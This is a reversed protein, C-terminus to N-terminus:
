IVDAVTRETRRFVAVGLGLFLVVVALGVALGPWYLHAHGAFLCWRFGDIVGAVPNVYYLLRWKEPVVSSSFGVPSIYLGFQVVFPVVFRFDRYRVTLASLVFAPGLGALVALIVFFPLFTLRSDPLVGCAVMLALLLAFSIAFDVAVVVSSAVPVLLRPFYVKSILQANTVLSGAAQSLIGSILFWPLMGALVLLFYPMRGETPLRALRGFVITLVAMTLIPRVLAWAIGFLTQKYQVAVDRWALMSFLDRYSWLDIWYSREARGSELILVREAPGCNNGIGAQQDPTGLAPRDPTLTMLNPEAACRVFHLPRSVGLRLQTRM